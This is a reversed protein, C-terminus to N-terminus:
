AGPWYTHLYGELALDIANAFVNLADGRAAPVSGPALRTLDRQEPHFQFGVVPYRADDNSRFAQVLRVCRNQPDSPDPWTPEPGDASVWPRCFDSYAAIKFRALRDGFPAVRIMDGHSIPLERTSSRGADGEVDFLPDAPDFRIIPRDADTSIDDTWWAREYPNRRTILGRILRNENRELVADLLQEEDDASRLPGRRSGPPQAELLALIQAGGCFGVFPAVREQVAARLQGMGRDSGSAPATVDWSWHGRRSPSPATKRDFEWDFSGSLM